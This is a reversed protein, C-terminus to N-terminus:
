EEAQHEIQPVDETNLNRIEEYNITIRGNTEDIGKPPNLSLHFETGASMQKM